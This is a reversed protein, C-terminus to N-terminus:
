KCQIRMQGEQYYFSCLNQVNGLEVKTVYMNRQLIKLIGLFILVGM